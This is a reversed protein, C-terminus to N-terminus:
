VSFRLIGDERVVSGGPVDIVGQGHWDMVLDDVGRIHVSTLPGIGTTTAARQYVRARIARPMDEVDRLLSTMAPMAVIAINSFVEDAIADLVEADAQLHEATRALAEAVGPGLERELVPLVEHRIRVRTFAPDLNHPDIWFELGQDICAAETETRRIALFPRLYIGNVPEMGSISAAGAGRTLGLLVTEAQDDLTHALLVADAGTDGLATEFATYRAARANGEPGRTEIRGQPDVRGAVNVVEIIVPALGLKRAQDAARAAVEASGDQLGHDIVVAGARLGSRQAEFATSAALALSDAGGSLAVLVLPADAPVDYGTGGSCGPMKTMAELAEPFVERLLVRVARRTDAM